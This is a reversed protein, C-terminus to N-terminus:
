RQFDVIMGILEEVSKFRSLIDICSRINRTNLHQCAHSFAKSVATYVWKVMNFCNILEERRISGFENRLNLLCNVVIKAVNSPIHERGAQYPIFTLLTRFADEEKISNVLELLRMVQAHKVKNCALVLGIVAGYLSIREARNAPQQTSTTPRASSLVLHM